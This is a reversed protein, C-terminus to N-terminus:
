AFTPAYTYFGIIMYFVQPIAAMAAFLLHQFRLLKQDKFLGKKELYFGVSFIDESLDFEEADSSEDSDQVSM